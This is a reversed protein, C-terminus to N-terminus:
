QRRVGEDSRRGAGEDVTARGHREQIAGSVHGADAGRASQPHGALPPHGKRAACRLKRREVGRREHDGEAFSRRSGRELGTDQRAPGDSDVCGHRGSPQRGMAADAHRGDFTRDRRGSARHRIEGEAPSIAVRGHRPDHIESVAHAAAGQFQEALNYAWERDCRHLHHFIQRPRTGQRPRDHFRDPSPKGLDSDGDPHRQIKRREANRADRLLDLFGQHGRWEGAQPRGRQLAPPIAAPTHSGGGACVVSPEPRWCGPAIAQAAVASAAVTSAVRCLRTRRAARM